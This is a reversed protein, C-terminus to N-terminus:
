LARKVSRISDVVIIIIVISRSSVCLIIIFLVASTYVRVYVDQDRAAYM